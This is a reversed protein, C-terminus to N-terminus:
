RSSPAPEIYFDTMRGQREPKSKFVVRVPMGVKIESKAKEIDSLDVQTLFHPFTSTAGELKVYCIVYPPDPLGEFKAIVITFAELRGKPPLEVWNNKISIFCRECYSRPPMLVRNCGSCKTALIRANDRLEVLFKSVTEGAAYSYPLEWKGPVEILEIEKEM